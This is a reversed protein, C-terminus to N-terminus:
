WSYSMGVSRPHHRVRDLRLWSLIVNKVKLTMDTSTKTAECMCSKVSEKTKTTECICLKVSEKDTLHDYLLTSVLVSGLLFLMKILLSTSIWFSFSVIKCISLSTFFSMLFFFSLTNPFVSSDDSMITLPTVTAITNGEGTTILSSLIQRRARRRHRPWFHNSPLSCM